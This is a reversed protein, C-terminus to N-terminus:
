AADWLDQADGEERQRKALRLKEWTEMAAEHLLAYDQLLDFMPQTWAHHYYDYGPSLSYHPDHHRTAPFGHEGLVIALRGLLRRTSEEVPKPRDLAESTRYPRSTRLDSHQSHFTSTRDHPPKGLEAHLHPWLGAPAEFLDETAANAANEVLKAVDVKLARLGDVGKAKAIEPHVTVVAKAQEPWFAAAWGAAEAVWEAHKARMPARLGELQKELADIREDLDTM